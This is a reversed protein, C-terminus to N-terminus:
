QRLQKIPRMQKVLNLNRKDIEALLLSSFTRAHDDLGPGQHLIIMGLVLENLVSEAPHDEYLVSSKLRKNARFYDNIDDAHMMKKNALDNLKDLLDHESLPRDLEIGLEAETEYLYIMRTQNQEYITSWRKGKKNPCAKVVERWEGLHVDNAKFNYIVESSGDERYVKLTIPGKKTLVNYNTIISKERRNLMKDCYKEYQLKAKYYKSVVDPGLLDVMEEKRVEVKHKTAEAKVSEKIKKQANIQEEILHIHDGYETIFDFKKLKKM